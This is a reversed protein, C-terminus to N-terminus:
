AVLRALERVVRWYFGKQLGNEQTEEDAFGDALDSALCTQVVEMYIKGVKSGLNPVHFSCLDERFSDMTYDEHWFESIRRWYGIELLLIGLSYIDYARSYRERAPGQARPHQYMYQSPDALTVLDSEVNLSDPRSYEFGLISPNKLNPIGNGENESLPDSAFVINQSRIGKHLWGSTHLLSLSLSLQFALKFRDGLFPIAEHELLDYLSDLATNRAPFEFVFGVRPHWDDSIYGLCRPVCLETPRVSAHLVRALGDLRSLQAVRASDSAERDFFKWEVLVNEDGGRHSYVATARGLLSTSTSAGTFVIRNGPIQLEESPVIQGLNRVRLYERRLAVVQHVNQYGISANQIDSLELANNSTVIEAGLGQRLSRREVVSLLHYLGDNYDKLDSIMAELKSKDSVAWRFKRVFTNMRSRQKRLDTDQRKFEEFEHMILDELSGNIMRPFTGPNDSVLSLGYRVKLTKYDKLLESVRTLTELVVKHDELERLELSQNNLESLLGWERGWMQFRTEQIRFKWLLTQSGQGLQKAETFLKYGEVCGMFTHIGLPITGLAIDAM